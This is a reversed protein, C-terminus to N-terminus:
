TWGNSFNEDMTQLTMRPLKPDDRENAYRMIIERGMTRTMNARARVDKTGTVKAIFPLLESWEKISEWECDKWSSLMYSIYVYIWKITSGDGEWGFYADFEKERLNTVVM